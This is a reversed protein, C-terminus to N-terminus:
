KCLLGLAGGINEVLLWKYTPQNPDETKDEIAEGEELKQRLLSGMCLSLGDHQLIQRRLAFTESLNWLIRLIGYEMYKLKLPCRSWPFQHLIGYIEMVAELGGCSVFHLKNAYKRANEWPFLYEFALKEVQEESIGVRLLEDLDYSLHSSIPFHRAQLLQRIEKFWRVVIDIEKCDGESSYSVHVSDGARLGAKELTTGDGYSYGECTLTQVCAPISFKAEVREKLASLPLGDAHATGPSASVTGQRTTNTETCLLVVNIEEEESASKTSVAWACSHDM